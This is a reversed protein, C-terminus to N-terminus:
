DESYFVGNRERGVLAFNTLTTHAPSSQFRFGLEHASWSINATTRRGAFHFKFQSDDITLSTGGSAWRLRYSVTADISPGDVLANGVSFYDFLALREVNLSDGDGFEGHQEVNSAASDDSEGHKVKVSSGPIFNTWFV